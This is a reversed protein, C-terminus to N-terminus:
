QGAKAQSAASDLLFSEWHKESVIALPCRSTYEVAKMIKNGFASFNWDRSTLTGIVLYSTQLKVTDACHGGRLEVQKQCAKRGGYLFKGTFVFENGNFIVDPAPNTLPLDTPGFMLTHDDQAGVIHNVLVALDAREDEDAVGDAYIRDLREVLTSVPWVDAIERNAVCWKALSEAEASSIYQDAIIGRLFGILEHIARTARRAHNYNLALPQGDSDLPTAM